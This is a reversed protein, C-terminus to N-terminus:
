ESARGMINTMGTDDVFDGEVYKETNLTVNQIRDGIVNIDAELLHHKEILYKM